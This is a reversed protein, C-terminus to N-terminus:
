MPLLKRGESPVHRIECGQAKMECVVEESHSVRVLSAKEVEEQDIMATSFCGLPSGELNDLFAGAHM